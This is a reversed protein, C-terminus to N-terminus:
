KAKVSVWRRRQVPRHNLMWACDHPVAGDGGGCACFPLPATRKYLFAGLVLLM